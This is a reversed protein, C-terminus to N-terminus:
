KSGGQKYQELKRALMFAWIPYAFVLGALIHLALGKPMRKDRRGLRAILVFWATGLFFAPIVLFIQQRFPLVGIVLLTQLVIVSLFGTLGVILTAQNLREDSTQLLQHVTFMIPILLIYHMIVAIDNLPGFVPVGAFFIVLFILGIAAIIGSAFAAWITRQVGSFVGPKSPGTHTHRM